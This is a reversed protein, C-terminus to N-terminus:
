KQGPESLAWNVGFPDQLQGYKDGWFALALPMKVASLFGRVATVTLLRRAWGRLRARRHLLLMAFASAVSLFGGIAALRYVLRALSRM